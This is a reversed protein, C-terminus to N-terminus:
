PRFFEKSNNEYNKLQQTNNGYNKSYANGEPKSCYYTKQNNWQRSGRAQQQQRTNFQRSENRWQGRTSSTNGNNNPNNQVSNQRFSQNAHYSNPKQGNHSKNFKNYSYGNFNGRFNNKKQYHFVQPVSLNKIANSEDKAGNIADKLKSYNRAKVITSLNHDKLGNAFANIALKENTTKLIKEAANDGNAQSITLDIYLEEIKRGFEDITKGNQRISHLEISVTAASKKTLLNSKIASILDNNSNYSEELRLKASQSLRTKLVYKTLMKKGDVDLLEDYLQIADILQRTVNENGTMCPLLSSATKLDFKETMKASTRKPRIGLNNRSEVIFKETAEVYLKVKDITEINHTSRNFEVRLNSFEEEIRNLENNKFQNVNSNERRQTNDKLLNRHFVKIEDYIYKFSNITDTDSM